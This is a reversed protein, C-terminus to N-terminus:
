HAWILARHLRSCLRKGFATKIEQCSHPWARGAVLGSVRHEVRRDTAWPRFGQSSSKRRRLEGLGVGAWHPWKWSVFGLGRRSERVENREGSISWLAIIITPKPLM